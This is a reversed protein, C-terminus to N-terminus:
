DRRCGGLAVDVGCCGTGQSMLNQNAQIGERNVGGEGGNNTGGVMSQGPDIKLDVRTKSSVTPDREMGVVNGVLVLNSQNTRSNSTGQGLIGWDLGRKGCQLRIELNDEKWPRGIRDGQVVDLLGNPMGMHGRRKGESVHGM